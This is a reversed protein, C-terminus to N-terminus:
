RTTEVQGATTLTVTKAHELLERLEDAAEIETEFYEASEPLEDDALARYEQTLADLATMLLVTQKETLTTM